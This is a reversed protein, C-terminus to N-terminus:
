QGQELFRGCKGELSRLAMEDVQDLWFSLSTETLGRIRIGAVVQLNVQSVAMELHGLALL